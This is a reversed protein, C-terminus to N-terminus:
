LDMAKYTRIFGHTNNTIIRLAVSGTTRHAPRKRWGMEPLAESHKPIVEYNKEEAFTRFFRVGAFLLLHFFSFHLIFYQWKALPFIKTQQQLL